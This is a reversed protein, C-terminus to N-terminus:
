AADQGDVELELLLDRTEREAEPAAPEPKAIGLGESSDPGGGAHCKARAGALTMM